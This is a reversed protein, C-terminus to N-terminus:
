KIDFRFQFIQICKFGTEKKKLRQVQRVDSQQVDPQEHRINKKIQLNQDIVNIFRRLRDNSVRHINNDLLWCLSTKKIVMQKRNNLTTRTFQTQSNKNDTETITIANLFKECHSYDKLNM